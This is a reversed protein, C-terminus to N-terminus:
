VLVRYPTGMSLNGHWCRGLLIGGSDYRQGEGDKKWTVKIIRRPHLVTLGDGGYRPM